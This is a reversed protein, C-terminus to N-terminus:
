VRAAQYADIDAMAQDLAAKVAALDAPTGAEAAAAADGLANAGIGRAAGKITHAVDRWDAREAELTESWSQAQQRFLELVERVIGRDNGVFSELYAFDVASM